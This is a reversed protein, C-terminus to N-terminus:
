REAMKLFGEQLSLKGLTKWMSEAENGSELSELFTLARLYDGDEIASFTIIFVFIIIIIVCSNHVLQGTRFEILGEDLTYSVTDVGSQVLVETQGGGREVGIVEGQAVCVYM